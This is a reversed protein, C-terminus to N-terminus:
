GGTMEFRYTGSGIAFSVGGASEGAGFIGDTGAGFEGGAWVDKGSEAIKVDKLGLTPVTVSATANAPIGVELTLRDGTRQWASSVCGRVTRMSARADDLGDPVLPCIAIEGFGPSMPDTGYYDPGKIGALDNYLFEDITAWMIMSEANGCGAELSWSEWITTAGEGVMFGWGPYTTNTVIKWLVDGHGLDTLKDILCTTGTNGTHLHNGYQETISEILCGIVGERDAEPVIGLALPFVQATQSGGAYVHRDADLWKANFAAKVERALRAYREADDPKELREAVLSMVVAARYLYGTWVLERPTEASVFTEGGPEDGPLMHDGFLGTTIILDEAVTEMYDTCRKMGKYHELVLREDDYYRYLYWVVGPYNGGWAADFKPGLYAPCVHPVLGDEQQSDAIDRLWKTWFIPMHKRPYLSGTITAPDTWAWHERHLCDLPMGFLANKLSWLVNRHIRNVLDDACEFGGSLDADTHVVCGDVDDIELRGSAGEIQVYHVPHYTFRPEYVEGDPDGRLVYYDTAKPPEHRRKDILGSDAYVRGSYKIAIKTGAPGKVRVRVWGGFLQGFDYLFVNPGPETLHVAKRVEVVRIPPMFQSRMVGGPAEKVEAASWASDDFGVASWGPTELRADYIEGHWFDNLIICSGGAKWTEDSVLTAVTGDGTEVVLQVRARPCGGYQGAFEPESYWGNGLWIGIANDGQQLLSTVDHVGYYVSKPYQSAAPELVRDGVKGGNLYVESWGIGSVYLRAREVAGRVQFQRRLMPAPVGAAGGIWKGQWDAEDLLAMEFTAPESWGSVEGAQDCVRVKWFCRQGSALAAGEYAVNVSRGSDVKGSDWLDGEDAALEDESSAVLIQYASQMVGRESSDLLWGFRPKSVDIGFPNVAYECTLEVPQM